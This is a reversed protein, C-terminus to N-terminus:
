KKIIANVVVQSAILIIFGVVGLYIYNVPPVIVKVETKIASSGTLIDGLGDLGTASNYKRM